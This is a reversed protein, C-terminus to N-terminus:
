EMVRLGILQLTRGTLLDILLIWPLRASGIHRSLLMRSLHVSSRLIASVLAQEKTKSSAEHTHLLSFMIKPVQSGLPTPTPPEADMM